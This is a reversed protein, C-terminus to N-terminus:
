NAVVTTGKIIRIGKKGHDSTQEASRQAQVTETTDVTQYQGILNELSFNKKDISGPNPQVPRLSLHVKGSEKALALMSAEDPTVALTVSIITDVSRKEKGITDIADEHNAALVLINQLLLSGINRGDAAKNLTYIVDVYDGPKVFGAVGTVEDVPITFARKDIPISGIFDDNKGELMLKRESIQDGATIPVKSLKGVADNIDKLSDAQVLEAPVNIVKVMDHTIMTKRPIDQAAVIVPDSQRAGGQQQVYRYVLGATILSLVLAIVILM